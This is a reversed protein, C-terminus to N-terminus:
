PCWRTCWRFVRRPHRFADNWEMRATLLAIPSGWGNSKHFLKWLLTNWRRPIKNFSHREVAFVGLLHSNKTPRRKNPELHQSFSLRSPVNRLIRACFSVLLWFPPPPALLAAPPWPSQALTFSRLPSVLCTPQALSTWSLTPSRTFLEYLNDMGNSRLSFESYNFFM